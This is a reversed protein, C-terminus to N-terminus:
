KQLSYSIFSYSYSIFIIYTRYSYAILIIHTNNVSNSLGDIAPPGDHSIFVQASSSPWSRARVTAAPRRWVENREPQVDNISFTIWFHVRAPNSGVIVRGETSLCLLTPAGLSGNRTPFFIGSFLLWDALANGTPQRQSIWINHLFRRCIGTFLRCDAAGLFDALLPPHYAWWYLSTSWKKTTFHVDLYENGGLNLGKKAEGEFKCLFQM